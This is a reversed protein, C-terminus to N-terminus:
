VSLFLVEIVKSAGSIVFKDIMMSANKRKVFDSVTDMARVVAQFCIYIM